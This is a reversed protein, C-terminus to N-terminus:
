YGHTSCTCNINYIKGWKAKISTITYKPWHVLALIKYNYLKLNIATFTCTYMHPDYKLMVSMSPLIMTYNLM